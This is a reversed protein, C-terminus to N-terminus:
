LLKKYISNLSNKYFDKDHLTSVNHLTKSFKNNDKYKDKMKDSIESNLKDNLNTILQTQVLNCEKDSDFVSKQNRKQLTTTLRINLNSKYVAKEKDSKFVLETNIKKWDFNASTKTKPNNKPIEKKEEGIKAKIDGKSEEEKIKVKLKAKNPDNFINSYM